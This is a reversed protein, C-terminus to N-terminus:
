GLAALFNWIMQYAFVGVGMAATQQAANSTARQLRVEPWLLIPITCLWTHLGLTAADSFHRGTDHIITMFAAHRYHWVFDYPLLVAAARLMPRDPFLTLTLHRIKSMEWGYVAGLAGLAVVSKASAGNADGINGAVSLAESTGYAVAYAAPTFRAYRHLGRWGRRLWDTVGGVARDWLEYGVGRASKVDSCLQTYHSIDAPGTRRVDRARRVRHEASVHHAASEHIGM